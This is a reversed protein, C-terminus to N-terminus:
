MGFYFGTLSPLEKYYDRWIAGKSFIVEPTSLRTALPERNAREDKVEDVMEAQAVEAGYRRRQTSSVSLSRPLLGRGVLGGVFKLMKKLVAM